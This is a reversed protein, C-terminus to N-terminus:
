KRKFTSRLRLFLAHKSMKSEAPIYNEYFNQVFEEIKFGFKQYLIMAPNDPSVHLTIDRTM